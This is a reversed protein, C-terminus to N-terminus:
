ASTTLRKCFSGLIEERTRQIGLLEVGADKLTVAKKERFLMMM